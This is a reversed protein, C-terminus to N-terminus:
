NSSSQNKEPPSTLSSIERKREVSLKKSNFIELVESIKSYFHTKIQRSYSETMLFVNLLTSNGDFDNHLEMRNLFSADFNIYGIDSNVDFSNNKLNLFPIGSNTISVNKFFIFDFFTNIISKRPSNIRDIFKQSSIYGEINQENTGDNFFYKSDNKINKEELLEYNQGKKEYFTSIFNREKKHNFSLEVHPSFYFRRFNVNANDDIIQFTKINVNILNNSPTENEDRTGLIKNRLGKFFNELDAVRGDDYYIGSHINNSEKLRADLGDFLRISKKVVGGLLRIVRSWPSLDVSKFYSSAIIRYVYDFKNQTSTKEDFIHELTHNFNDVEGMVYDNGTNYLDMGIGSLDRTMDAINLVKNQPRKLRGIIDDGRERIQTVTRNLRNDIRVRANEDLSGFLLFFASLGNDFANPNKILTYITNGGYLLADVVIKIKKGVFRHAINRVSRIAGRELSDDVNGEDALETAASLYPGVLPVFNLGFKIGEKALTNFGDYISKILEKIKHTADFSLILISSSISPYVADVMFSKFNNDLIPDLHNHMERLARNRVAVSSAVSMSSLALYTSRITNIIKFINDKKKSLNKLNDYKKKIALIKSVVNQKKEKEGIEEIEEDDEDEIEDNDKKLFFLDVDKLFNIKERKKANKILNVFVQKSDESSLVEKVVRNFRTKNDASLVVSSNKKDNSEFDFNESPIGNLLEEFFEDKFHFNTKHSSKNKSDM